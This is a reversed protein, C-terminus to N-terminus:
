TKVAKIYSGIMQSKQLLQSTHFCMRVSTKQKTDSYLGNFSLSCDVVTIYLAHEIFTAVRIPKTLGDYNVARFGAGRHSVNKKSYGSSPKM